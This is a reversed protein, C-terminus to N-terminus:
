FAGPNIYKDSESGYLFLSKELSPHIIKSVSFFQSPAASVSFLMIILCKLTWIILDNELFFGM